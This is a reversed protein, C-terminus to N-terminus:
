VRDPLVVGQVIALAEDYPGLLVSGVFVSIAHWNSAARVVFEMGGSGQPFDRALYAGRVANKRRTRARTVDDFRGVEEVYKQRTRPVRPARQCSPSGRPGGVV